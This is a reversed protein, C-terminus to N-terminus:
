GLLDQLPNLATAIQGATAKFGDVVTSLPTVPNVLDLDLLNPLGPLEGLAGTINDIIDAASLDIGPATLPTPPPPPPIFEILRLVYRYQQPRGAVETVRLDDIVVQKIETSATIDAIFPMPQHDEFKTRVQELAALSEDDVMLGIIVITAPCRGLHQYAAGDLGPVPHAVWARDESTRVDQVLPLSLDDLM